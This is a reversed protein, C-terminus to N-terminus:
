ESGSRWRPANLLAHRLGARSLAALESRAIVEPQEPRWLLLEGTQLGLAEALASEPMEPEPSYGLPILVEKGWFRTSGELLPLNKGLVLVAGGLAAAELAALRASAVTDSWAALAPLDCLLATTVRRRDDRRLTLGVAAPRPAPAPIPQVPAPFLVHALPQYDLNTPLDFAPLAQGFGHWHGDQFHFLIAGHIPMVTQLVLENGADWRLWTHEETLAAQVGPETRLRALLPLATRPLRALAIQELPSAM